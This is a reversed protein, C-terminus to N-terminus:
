MTSALNSVAFTIDPRTIISLYLLSEIASQYLQQYISEDDNTAIVPKTNIDVPTDVAKCDQMGFKKLLDNTYVPNVLAIARLSTM